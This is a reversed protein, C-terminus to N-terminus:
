HTASTGGDNEASQELIEAALRRLEEQESKSLAVKQLGEAQQREAMAAVFREYQPDRVAHTFDLNGLKETLASLEEEEQPNLAEKSALERKRDLDHLTPLDLQSRLGYIESTLLAAVGMGRPDKDPMEATVHGTEDDRQLIQVQSRTLGAIVLPDHTAMIVHSNDQAGGVDKLFDLYQVSWAPNLHTDPEDLLFLSEDERTFRLLGLVMLLQQEGESLERFTLSGDVKRARVNMRLEGILESIYTSELAKFLDQQSEYGSSLSRVQELDKLFLYLHEKTTNRRFGAPVRFSMRLPALALGYLKDLLNSVVGRSNWFRQDGTPSKWPPERMVFLAYDLGEIRLQESLFQQIEPEDEAYFALLVFQSHVQRAFFLRRLPRENGELLDKYFKEQHKIFHDEMRNSPGSYYGFVYNPLYTRDSDGHFKTFPIAEGNVAISYGKQTQREPDADIHVRKDRCVYDLEYAFLPSEGLDLDRFIITLAELLNSKGTGNRGVVVTTPSEEDFDISFDCLNKFRSKITLQDLRM